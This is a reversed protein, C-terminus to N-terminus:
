PRSQVRDRRARGAPEDALRENVYVAMPKGPRLLYERRRYRQRLLPRLRPEWAREVILVDGDPDAPVKHHYQV